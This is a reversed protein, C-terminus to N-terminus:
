VKNFIVTKMLTFHPKMWKYYAVCTEWNHSLEILKTSNSLVTSKILLSKSCRARCVKDFESMVIEFCSCDYIFAQIINKYAEVNSNTQMWIRSGLFIIVQVCYWKIHQQKLYRCIMNIINITCQQMKNIQLHVKKYKTLKECLSFNFLAAPTPKMLFFFLRCM